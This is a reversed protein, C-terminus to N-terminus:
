QSVQVTHSHEHKSSQWGSQSRRGAVSIFSFKIQAVHEAPLVTPASRSCRQKGQSLPPPSPDWFGLIAQAPLSRFSMGDWGQGPCPGKWWGLTSFAWHGVRGPVSGAGSGAGPTGRHMRRALCSRCCLATIPLILDPIRFLFPFQQEHLSQLSWAPCRQQAPSPAPSPLLHRRPLPLGAPGCSPRAAWARTACPVLPHRFPTWGGNGPERRGEWSRERVRLAVPQTPARRLQFEGASAKAADECM